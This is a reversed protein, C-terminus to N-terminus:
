EKKKAADDIAVLREVLVPHSHHYASYWRDNNPPGKNKKDLVCLAGKLDEAYGLDVAFRDAQYEFTRSVFNQALGLLEDLPGILLQFIVLSALAPKNGAGQFGFAELVGPAGRTMAFMSMQAALVVQSAVFLYKTHSLAWHGLEHALVATVQEDTSQELLTDYLVIRKNKFFGYMYANSHASRRSGDVVFLKKLPFKLRGALSEIKKKLKGEELPQYKNFLPAIIVPYITLMILSVALMFGWIWVAMAPGPVLLMIKVLGAIIPPSLVMTLLTSKILDGVFTSMTTNNFGHRAEVVFTGYLSWPVNMLTSMVSLLVVWVQLVLAYRTLSDPRAVAHRDLDVRVISQSIEANEWGVTNSLFTGAVRWAWPYYGKVLMAVSLLSAISRSAARM